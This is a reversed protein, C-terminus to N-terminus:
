RLMIFNLQRGTKGGEGRHSFFIDRHCSTCIDASYINHPPIGKVKIQSKNAAALDLMWKGERTGKDFFNDSDGYEKMSEFVRKDVEYCCPGIAPGIVAVIDSASSGFRQMFIDIAKAAIGLSTGMWGAHVAGIIRRVPDLFFIPICDATKIGIALGPRASIIGDCFPDDGDRSIQSDEDIIIIENGHVQDLTFFNEVPIDFASSLLTWNRTISEKSDGVHTNFNFNALREQSVGGWRTCFAHVICDCDGLVTAELYRIDGKEFFRFDKAIEQKMKKLLM